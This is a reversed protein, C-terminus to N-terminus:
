KGTLPEPIWTKGDYSVWTQLKDNVLEFRLTEPARLAAAQTGVPRTRVLLAHGTWQTQIPQWHKGGDESLFMAGAADLAVSRGVEAAVSLAELGSPLTVKQVKSLGATTASSVDYSQGRLPISSVQPLPAAAPAAAMEKTEAQVTVTQSASGRSAGATVPKNAADAAVSGSQELTSPQAVNQQALNQQALNQQTLNQQFQNAAMPGGLGSAKARAAMMGHVSNESIGRPAVIPVGATGVALEKRDASKKQDLLRAEDKEAPLPASQRERDRVESPKATQAKPLEATPHIASQSNTAPAKASEVNRPADTESLKASMETSDAAHRFHQVVAIGIFGAFAATPIWMWKWGKFWSGRQRSPAAESGAVQPQDESAASQALFVVERCRSCTAMHAFIQEREAEPLLQEVFATLSDADPHMGSQVIPNM